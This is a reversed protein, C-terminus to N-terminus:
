TNKREAVRYNEQLARTFPNKLVDYDHNEIRSVPMVGMLANTVFVETADHLLAIDIPAERSREPGLLALVLGRAIGPLPGVSLPPTLAIGDRVVFLNTGAGEIVQGTADIFLMEDCGAAIAARRARINELYNLTKHGSLSNIRQGTRRTQLRFGRAYTEASYVLPRTMILEGTEDEQNFIAVKVSGERLANANILTLIRERLDDLPLTCPLDIARASATLRAHHASFFVPRGAIVKITEFLGHGYLFGEHLPSITAAHDSRLHGNLIVKTDIPM